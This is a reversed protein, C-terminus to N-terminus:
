RRSSDGRERASDLAPPRPAKDKKKLKDLHLEFLIANPVDFDYLEPILDKKDIYVGRKRYKEINKVLLLALQKRTKEVFGPNLRADLCVVSENELLGSKLLCSLGTQTIQNGSVDIKRIYSDKALTEALTEAFGDSFKNRRLVINRLGETYRNRFQKFSCIKAQQILVDRCTGKPCEENEMPQGCSCIHIQDGLHNMINHDAKLGGELNDLINFAQRLRKAGADYLKFKHKKSKRRRHNMKEDVVM